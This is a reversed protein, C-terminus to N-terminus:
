LIANWTTISVKRSENAESQTQAVNRNGLQRERLDEV